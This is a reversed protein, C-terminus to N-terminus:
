YMVVSHLNLYVFDSEGDKEIVPWQTSRYKVVISRYM